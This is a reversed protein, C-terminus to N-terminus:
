NEGIVKSILISQTHGNDRVINAELSYPRPAALCKGICLITGWLLSNNPWVGNGLFKVFWKQFKVFWKQCMLDTVAGGGYM